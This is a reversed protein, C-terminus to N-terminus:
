QAQKARTSQPNNWQLSQQKTEPDCGYIWSKDGM